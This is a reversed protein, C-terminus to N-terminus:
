YANGFGRDAQSQAKGQQKERCNDQGL